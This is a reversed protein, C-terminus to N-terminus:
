VPDAAGAVRRFRLRRARVRSGRAVVVLPLRLGVVAKAVSRLGGSLRLSSGAWAGARQGRGRRELSKRARRMGMGTGRAVSCQVVRPLVLPPVSLRRFQVFVSMVVATDPPSALHPRLSALFPEVRTARKCASFAPDNFDLSGNDIPHKTSDLSAERFFWRSFTSSSFSSPLLLFRLPLFFASRHVSTRHRHRFTCFLYTHVFSHQAFFQGCSKRCCTSKSAPWPM